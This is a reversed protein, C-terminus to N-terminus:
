GRKTNDFELFYRVEKGKLIFKVTPDPYGAVEVEFVAIGKETVTKDDLPRLFQPPAPPVRVKLKADCAAQGLRNKAQCTVIGDFHRTM